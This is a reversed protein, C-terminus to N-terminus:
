FFWSVNGGVSLFDDSGENYTSLGTEINVNMELRPKPRYSLHLRVFPADAKRLRDYEYGFYSEFITRDSFKNEWGL